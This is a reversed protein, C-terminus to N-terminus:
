IFEVPKEWIALVLCGEASTVRHQSGPPNIVLSGTQYRGNHDEQSGSLAFLHEYGPHRRLPVSAGPQYCLLAAAPAHQNDGYLRSIAIGPRFPKWAPITKLAHPHLLSTLLISPPMAEAM